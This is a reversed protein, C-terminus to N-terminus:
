ESDEQVLRDLPGHIRHYENVLQELQTVRLELVVIREQALRMNAEMMKMTRTSAQSLIDAAEARTKGALASDNTKGFIRNILTTLVSSGLVAAFVMLVVETDM